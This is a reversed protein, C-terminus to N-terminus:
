KSRHMIPSKIQAKIKGLRYLATQNITIMRMENKPKSIINSKRDLFVM